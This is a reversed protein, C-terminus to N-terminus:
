KWFESGVHAFSDQWFHFVEYLTSEHLPFSFILRCLHAESTRDMV